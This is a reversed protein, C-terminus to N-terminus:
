NRPYKGDCGNRRRMRLGHMKRWNNSGIMNWPYRNMNYPGLTCQIALVDENKRIKENLAEEYKGAYTLCGTSSDLVIDDTFLAKMLGDSEIYNKTKKDKKSM